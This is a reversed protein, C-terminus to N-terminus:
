VTYFWKSGDAISEMNAAVDDIRKIADDLLMICAGAYELTAMEQHSM